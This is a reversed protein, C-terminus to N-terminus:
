QITMTLGQSSVLSFSGLTTTFGNQPKELSIIQTYYPKGVLFPLNPIAVVTSKGSGSADSLVDLGYYELGVIPNVHIKLGIGFYDTGALDQADCILVVGATSKPMNSAMIAFTSNGIQPLSNTTLSLIGSSGYTGTGYTSEGTFRTANNVAIAFKDVPELPLVADLDGDLDTDALQISIGYYQIGYNSVSSFNGAGDGLFVSVNSDYIYSNATVLDPNGDQNVDGITVYGAKSSGFTGVTYYNPAALVGGGNNLFLAIRNATGSATAVDPLGDHNVDGLCINTATGTVAVSAPAAFSGGGTGLLLSVTANDATVIDVIGDANMDAAALATPATGTTFPTAAGFTGGVQGLLVSVTNGASHAVAVDPRGDANLDAVIVARALSPLPYSFPFGFGGNGDGFMVVVKAPSSVALVLDLNMDNNVDAVVANQPPGNSGFTTPAGFSYPGNGLAVSTSYQATNATIADLAGDKNIDNLTLIRVGTAAPSTLSTGLAGAGNGIGITVAYSNTNTAIVDVKGDSTVDALAVHFPQNGLTFKTPAGFTHAVGTSLLISVGGDFLANNAVVIDPFGDGNMDSLAVSRPDPGAPYQSAPFFNGLTNNFSVSVTDTPTRSATVIDLAGDLNLDAIALAWPNAGVAFNKQLGFFGLGDGYVVSFTGAGYNAIALDQKSDGNFDAKVMSSHAQPTFGYPTIVPPAFIGGGVGIHVSLNGAATAVVMDTFGDGNLNGVAVSMPTGGAAITNGPGFLGGGLAPVINLITAAGTVFDSKGDGTLDGYAMTVTGSTPLTVNTGPTFTGNGAGRLVTLFASAKNATVLDLKGDGDMDTINTFQPIQGVPFQQAPFIQQATALSALLATAGASALITPFSHTRFM